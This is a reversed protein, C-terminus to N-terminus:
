ALLVFVAPLGTQTRASIPQIETKGTFPRGGLCAGIREDAFDIELVFLVTLKPHEDIAIVETLCSGNSVSVVDASESEEAVM